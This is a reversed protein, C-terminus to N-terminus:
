GWLERTPIVETRDLNYEAFDCWIELDERTCASLTWFARTFHPSYMARRFMRVRPPNFAEFMKRRWHALKGFRKPM